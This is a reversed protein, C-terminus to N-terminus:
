TRASALAMFSPQHPTMGLVMDTAGHVNNHQDYEVMQPGLPSQGMAPSMGGTSMHGVSHGMSTGMLDYSTGLANPSPDYVTSRGRKGSTHGGRGGWTAAAADTGHPPPRSAHHHGPMHIFNAGLPSRVCVCGVIQLWIARKDCPKRYSRSDM